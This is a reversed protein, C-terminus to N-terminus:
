LYVASALYGVVRSKDGSTEGSNTYNLTEISSTNYKKALLLLTLIPGIGCAEGQGNDIVRVLQQPDNKEILQTVLKDKRRAIDDSHYHSLDSSAVILYRNNKEALLQFLNDALDSAFQFSPNGMIVPVINFDNKLIYQLFPIQVEISHEQIHAIEYEEILKNHSLLFENAATDIEVEGLPTKYCGDPWLAAGNLITYHSPGIIIVTDYEFNKLLKYAHGACPGSYMYGAHPSIIGLLKKDQNVKVNANTLYSSIMKSLKDKNASYFMGSVVPERVKLVM